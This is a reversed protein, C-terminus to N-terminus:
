GASPERSGCHFPGAQQLKGHLYVTVPSARCAGFAGTFLSQPASGSHLPGAQQLKARLYVTGPMAPCAGLAGTFANPSFQQLKVDPHRLPRNLLVHVGSKGVRMTTLRPLREQLVVGNPCAVKQLQVIHPNVAGEASGRKARATPRRPSRGTGPSRGSRNRGIKAKKMTSM